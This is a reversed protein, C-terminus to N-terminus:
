QLVVGAADLYKKLYSRQPELLNTIVAAQNPNAAVLRGLNEALYLRPDGVGSVPFSITRTIKFM